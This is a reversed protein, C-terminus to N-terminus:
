EYFSFLHIIGKRFPMLALHFTFMWTWSKLEPWWNWKKRHCGNFLARNWSGLLYGKYPTDSVDLCLFSPGFYEFHWWACVFSCIEDVGVTASSNGKNEVEAPIFWDLRIIRTKAYSLIILTTKRTCAHICPWTCTYTHTHKHTHSYM